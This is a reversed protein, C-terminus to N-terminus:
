LIRYRGILYGILGSAALFCMSGGIFLTVDVFTWDMARRDEIEEILPTIGFYQDSYKDIAVKEKVDRLDIM